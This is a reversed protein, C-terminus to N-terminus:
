RAHNSFFPPIQSLIIRKDCANLKYRSFNDLKSYQCLIAVNAKDYFGNIDTKTSYLYKANGM